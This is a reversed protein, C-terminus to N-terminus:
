VRLKEFKELLETIKTKLHQRDKLIREHEGLLKNAKKHDGEMATVMSHLQSNESDAARHRKILEALLNEIRSLDDLLGEDM